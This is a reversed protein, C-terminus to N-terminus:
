QPNEQYSNDKLQNRSGFTIIKGDFNQPLNQSKSTATNNGLDNKNAIFNILNYEAALSLIRSSTFQINGCTDVIRLGPFYSSLSPNIILILYRILLSKYWTCSVHFNKKRVYMLNHTDVGTKIIDLTRNSPLVYDLPICKLKSKMIKRLFYRFYHSFM